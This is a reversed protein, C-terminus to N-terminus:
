FIFFNEVSLAAGAKLQAFQIAEGSGNGDADYYLAGTAKNYVIRDNADHAEAGIRFNSAALPGMDKADPDVPTKPSVELAEFAYANLMIKEGAKANFNTIRDIGGDTPGHSFVFTDVGAGGKLVDSGAGGSLLDDGAGSSLIDNGGGGSLHDGHSTGTIRDNDSNAKFYFGDGDFKLGFPEYGKTSVKKFTMMKEKSINSEGESLPPDEKVSSSIFYRQM